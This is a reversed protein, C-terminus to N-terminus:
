SFVNRARGLYAATISAYGSSTNDARPQRNRRSTMWASHEARQAAILVTVLRYVCAGIDPQQSARPGAVNLTHIRQITLWEAFSEAMEEPPGMGADVIRRPKGHQDCLRVTLATGRTPEGFVVVLTCDSDLVNQRTRARYKHSGMERLPYRDPIRGDEARHGKPCWGGCPLGADLAARDAGAQGGSIIRLTKSASPTHSM